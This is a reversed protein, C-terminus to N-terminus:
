LTASARPRVRSHHPGVTRNLDDMPAADSVCAIGLLLLSRKVSSKLSVKALGYLAAAM